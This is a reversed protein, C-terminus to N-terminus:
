DNNVEKKFIAFYYTSDYKDFPLFQKQEILSFDPHKELFDDTIQLTEKKNMTSVIYILQGGDEVFESADHLALKQNALYSDLQDQKIRNFYDPSKKLEAFNTNEPMVFFTHVKESLCTIISSHGTQYVNVNNLQRTEVDKKTQYYAESSGAIVDMKYRKSLLAELQLPLNNQVESYLAIRRLIDLDLLSYLYYESPSILVMKGSRILSHRMPGVKGEYKYLGEFNSPVFDSHRSLEEDSILSSNKILFHNAPVNISKVIKYTYGKFHKMWMKLVWTPINFRYHLYEISDNPVSSPILKTKDTSLQNIAEIDEKNIEYKTLESDMDDKSILPVFLRNTLYLYLAIKQDDSFTKESRSLINAFIYFHRLSCGIINTLSKRDERIIANKNCINEIALKFPIEKNLIDNLCSHSVEILRM